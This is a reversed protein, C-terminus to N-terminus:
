RWFVEPIESPWEEVVVACAGAAIAAAVYKHGDVAVGRVAVFVTGPVVRRSDPTLRVVRECPSSGEQPSAAEVLSELSDVCLPTTDVLQELTM